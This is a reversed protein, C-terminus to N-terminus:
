WDPWYGREKRFEVMKEINSETSAVLEAIREETPEGERIVMETRGLHEVTVIFHTPSGSQTVSYGM